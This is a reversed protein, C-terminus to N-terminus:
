HFVWDGTGTYDYTLECDETTTSFRGYLQQLQSSYNGVAKFQLQMGRTGVCASSQAFGFSELLKNLEPINMNYTGDIGLQLKEPKVILTADANNKKLLVALDQIFKIIDSM